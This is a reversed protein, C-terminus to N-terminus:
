VNMREYLLNPKNGNQWDSWVYDLLDCLLQFTSKGYDLVIVLAASRHFPLLAYIHDHINACDSDGYTAILTMLGIGGGNRDSSEFREEDEADCNIEQPGGLQDDEWHEKIHDEKLDRM